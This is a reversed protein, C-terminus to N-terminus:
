QPQERLQLRLVPRLLQWGAARLDYLHRQLRDHGPRLRRRHRLPVGARVRGHRHSTWGRRSVTGTITAGGSLHADVGILPTELTPTVANAATFSNKGDYWESSYKPGQLNPSVAAQLRQGGVPAQHHLRWECRYDEGDIGRPPYSSGGGGGGGGRPVNASVSAGSLPHADGPGGVATRQDVGGCRLQVVVPAARQGLTVSVSTGSDGAGWQYNPLDNRASQWGDEVHVYYTGARLGSVSFDGSADTGLGYM